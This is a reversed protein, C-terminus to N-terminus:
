NSRHGNVRELIAILEDRAKEADAICQELVATPSLVAEIAAVEDGPSKDASWVWELDHAAEAVKKLHAAFARHLPTEARRAVDYALNDIGHFAYDLAGGSM